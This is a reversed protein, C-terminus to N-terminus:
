LVLKGALDFDEPDVRGGPLQHHPGKSKKRTCYLLLVGHDPHIPVVFAKYDQEATM